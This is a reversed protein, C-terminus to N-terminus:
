HTFEVLGTIEKKIEDYQRFTHNTLFIRMMAVRYHLWHILLSIKARNERAEEPPVPV